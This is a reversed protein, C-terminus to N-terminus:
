KMLSRVDYCAITSIIASFYLSESITKRLFDLHHETAKKYLIVTIYTSLSQAAIKVHLASWIIDRVLWRKPFIPKYEAALNFPNKLEKM